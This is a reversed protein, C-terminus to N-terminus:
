PHIGLRGLYRSRVLRAHQERAHADRWGPDNLDLLYLYVAQAFGEWDTLPIKTTQAGRMEFIPAQEQRRGVAETRNGLRGMSEMEADMEGSMLDLGKSIFILWNARTPGVQRRTGTTPDVLGHRVVNRSSDDLDAARMVLRIWHGAQNRYYDRETPPLSLFLAGLDTRALLFTDTIQKVYELNAAVDGYYLYTSLIMLLGKLKDSMPAPLMPADFREPALNELTWGAAGETRTFSRPLPASENGRAMAPVSGLAIGATVQPGANMGADVPRVRYHADPGLGTAANLAFPAMVGGAQTRLAEAYTKVAGLVTAVGATGPPTLPLPPHVVFEIESQGGGAEDASVQFGAQAGTGIPDGKAMPLFGRGDQKDREVLWGTEFEYGVDRQLTGRPAAARGLLRQVARNGIARQLALVEGRRLMRGPAPPGPT